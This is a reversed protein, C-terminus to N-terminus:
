KWASSKKVNPLVVFIDGYTEDPLAGIEEMSVVADHLPKTIVSINNGQIHTLGKSLCIKFCNKITNIVNWSMFFIEDLVLKNLTIRGQQSSPIENDIPIVLDCLKVIMSNFILAYHWNSSQKDHNSCYINTDAQLEFLLPFLFRLLTRWNKLKSQDWKVYPTLMCLTLSSDLWSFNRSTMHSLM